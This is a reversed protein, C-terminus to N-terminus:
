ALLISFYAFSDMHVWSLYGDAAFTESFERLQIDIPKNHKFGKSRLMRPPQSKLKWPNWYRDRCNIVHFSNVLFFISASECKGLCKGESPSFAAWHIVYLLGNQHKQFLFFILLTGSLSAPGGQGLVIFWFWTCLSFRNHDLEDDCVNLWVVPERELARGRVCFVRMPAYWWMDWCTLCVWLLSIRQTGM